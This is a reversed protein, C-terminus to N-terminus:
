ISFYGSSLLKFYTNLLYIFSIETSSLHHSILGLTPVYQCPCPQRGLSTRVHIELPLSPTSIRFQGSIGIKSVRRRVLDIM